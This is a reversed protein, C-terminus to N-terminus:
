IIPKNYTNDYAYVKLLCGPCTGGLFQSGFINEETKAV